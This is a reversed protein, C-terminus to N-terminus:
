SSIGDAIEESLKDFSVPLNRPGNSIGPHWRIDESTMRLNTVRALLREFAVTIQIRALHAGLCRHIGLGFGVHGPRPPDFVLEDADTFRADDRNASDFRILLRDGAGM